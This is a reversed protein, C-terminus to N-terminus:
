NGHSGALTFVKTLHRYCREYLTQPGIQGLLLRPLVTKIKHLHLIQLLELYIVACSRASLLVM